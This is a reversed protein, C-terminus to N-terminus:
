QIHSLLFKLIDNWSQFPCLMKRTNLKINSEFSKNQESVTGKFYEWRGSPCLQVAICMSTLPALSLTAILYLKNRRNKNMPGCISSCIGGRFAQAEKRDQWVGTNTLLSSNSMLLLSVFSYTLVSPSFFDCCEWCWTSFM